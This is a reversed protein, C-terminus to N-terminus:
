GERFLRGVVNILVTAVVSIVLMSTIPIFVTTNEGQYHIDGPLNGFWSFMGPFFRLLVGVVLLGAGIVILVNSLRV